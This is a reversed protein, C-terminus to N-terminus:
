SVLWAITLAIALLSVGVVPLSAKSQWSTEVIPPLVERFLFSVRGIRVVDGDKLSATTVVEGNVKTGNTSMLNTISVGEARLVLTAHQNSVTSDEIRLASDDNRGVINEGMGIHFLQGSVTASMGLLYTGPETVHPIEVERDADQGVPMVETTEDRRNPRHQHTGALPDDYHMVPTLDAGKGILQFRWRDFAIRDGHFLRVGGVVPTGNVRIWVFNQREVIRAHYRSVHEDRLSINAREDRGISLEGEVEFVHEGEDGHIAWSEIEAGADGGTGEVEIGIQMIVQGIGIVDGIIVQVPSAQERGNINVTASGLPIAVPGRESMDIRLHFDQVDEGPVILDNDLHNGLTMSGTIPIADDDWYLLYSLDEGPM